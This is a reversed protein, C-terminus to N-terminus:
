DYACQGWHKLRIAPNLMIVGGMARVRDCFCYDESLDVGDKVESYFYRGGYEAKEVEMREFVERKIMMFGTGAYLVECVQMGELERLNLQHDTWVSLRGDPGKQRYAGVAVEADLEWLGRVAEPEFEIDADIFLLRTGGMRLFTEVCVNRARHILSENGLILFDHEVGEILLVEQLRVISRLYGTTVMNGYAPTAILLM